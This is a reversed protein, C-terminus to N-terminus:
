SLFFHKADQPFYTDRSATFGFQLTRWSDWFGEGLFNRLSWFATRSSRLLTWVIATGLICTTRRIKLCKGNFEQLRRHYNDELIAELPTKEEQKIGQTTWHGYFMSIQTVLIIDLLTISFSGFSTMLWEMITEVELRQIALKLPLLAHWTKLVWLCGGNQPGHPQFNLGGALLWHKSNGTMHHAIKSHVRWRGQGEDTEQSFGKQFARFWM